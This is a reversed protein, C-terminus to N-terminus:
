EAFAQFCLPIVFHGGNRSQPTVFPPRNLKAEKHIVIPHLVDAPLVEIVQKMEEFFVVSHLAVHRTVFKCSYVDFPVVSVPATVDANWAVYVIEKDFELM